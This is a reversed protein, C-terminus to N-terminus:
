VNSLVERSLFGIIDLCDIYDQLHTSEILLKIFQKELNDNEAINKQKFIQNIIIKLMDKDLESGDKDSLQNLTLNIDYILGKSFAKKALGKVINQTLNLMTYNKNNDYYFKHCMTRLEGSRKIVSLAYANKGSMQKATHEMESATILVEKLPQMLHAVAIGASFTLETKEYFNNHLRKLTDFLASLPLFALVDEGGAYICLGKSAEIIDKASVAFESTRKSLAIHECESKGRYADGMNDGDFKVCAYYSSLFVNNKMISQYIEKAASIADDPYEGSTLEIDNNLDYIANAIYTSNKENQYDKNNIIDKYYFELLMNRLSIIPEKKADLYLRKLLAIASLAEKPKVIYKLKKNESIDICYKLNVFAPYKNDDGKKVIIANYEPFLTCKRGWPEDTQVFKRINKVAQLNKFIRDYAKAYESDDDYQEYLWYMEIFDALQKWAINFNDGSIDVKNFADETMSKFRCFITDQVCEAILRYSDSKGTDFDEAKAVFRNPINYNSNNEVEIIPFVLKFDTEKEIASIAAKTLDSLINSGGRLDTMKRSNEIFSKVSGITFAFLAKM